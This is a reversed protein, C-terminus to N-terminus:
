ASLEINADPAAASSWEVDLAAETEDGNQGPNTCGPYIQRFNGRTFKDLGFTTRFTRWDDPHLLNTDEVAAITVGKGTYGENWLPLLDYITAFDYPALTHFLSGDIKINFHPKWTNTARDYSVPGLAM